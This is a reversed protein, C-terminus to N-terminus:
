HRLSFTKMGNPNKNPFMAESLSRICSHFIGCQFQGILARDAVPLEDKDLPPILAITEHGVSSNNVDVPLNLVTQLLPHAAASFDCASFSSCNSNLKKTV